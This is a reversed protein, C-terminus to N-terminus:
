NKEKKINFIKIIEKTREIEEDDPNKNKLKSFFDEKKLNNVPKQYDEISNFYEYPCALKKTLDKWEDPFRAKLLKLDNEGIYNLLAEELNKIENSYDKKLDKISDNKFKDETILVKIESLIKLIEDNDVIEEEFDKLTKHSNDVLSKVLSGLGSSLFRYSDIFRICGYTVSIYEENTIPIIEFDVKDKKKEVLTKFFMHCDYNSFNHFIFPIFNSQKQTVNVNCNSHAPGRYKGTLHCHDRVKDSEINKECFRCINDNKYDEENEETMIIDKKTKKFYFAMKNELKLVEDVFWDVNDYGLPSKYYGSQLVDELESVIEYGNLVPNQKYINTKKNGVISNDKENDAEFDAYIRFYLPNKHFHKKWHLYSESSTRITTIDNNECKPKHIKLMNESTNSNLCRRCIFNKHHDGLFVNIKKILAYHNKYTLLDVIKDSKNKSIEIPILNHKWKNKDQYFNLEFINVSLNNLENFKHVDSCKFGNTFDFSQFNLENFYQIYNSVRNPHDNECPHLSALISWIFCYKVNNKINAQANSRLPIKIYNSGNLDDTKYFRIKMENIKDFIWGSEKTEQSQIQHELQSKVDINNIDTETLNNNIKLNIFLEIEDSRQDEENIKYFSASFLIHYKFKYQNILRAYITAMDKLIKNIYRKEFGIDPFNPIINLLSNAHSINHSELNIKFGIKLNEDIFYYPNIMKKAIEKDLEKDNMKINERAIQKLTKPNNVKQIKKKIPSREEKYFWEPIIM